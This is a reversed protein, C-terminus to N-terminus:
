LFSFVFSLLLYKKTDYKELGFLAAILENPLPTAIIIGAILFSIKKIFKSKIEPVKFRHNHIKIVKGSKKRLYRFMIYNAVTGGFAGTLSILWPSLGEKALIYFVAISFTITLTESFLFGAFFAGIYGYNKINYLFRELYGTFILLLTLFLIVTLLFTKWYNWEYRILKGIQKEKKEIEKLKMNDILM